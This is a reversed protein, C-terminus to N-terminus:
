PSRCEPESSVTITVSVLVCSVQIEAKVVPFTIRVPYGMDTVEIVDNEELAPCSYTEHVAGTEVKM